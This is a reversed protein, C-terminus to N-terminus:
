QDEASWGGDRFLVRFALLTFNTRTAVMTARNVRNDAFYELTLIPILEGGEKDTIEIGVVSGRQTGASNTWRVRDGMKVSIM